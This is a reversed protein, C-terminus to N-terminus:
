FLIGAENELPAALGGIAAAKRVTKMPEEIQGLHFQWGDNLLRNQRM